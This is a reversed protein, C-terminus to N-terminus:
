SVSLQSSASSSALSFDPSSRGSNAPEASDASLSSGGTTAGTTMSMVGGDGGGDASVAWVPSVLSTGCTRM